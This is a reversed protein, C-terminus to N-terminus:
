KDALISTCLLIKEKTIKAEDASEFGLVTNLTDAKKVESGGGGNSM